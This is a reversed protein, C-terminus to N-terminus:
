KSKSSVKTHLTKRGIHLMDAAKSKNGKCYKITERIIKEEAEQMSAGFPIQIAEGSVEIDLMHKPLDKSTIKGDKSLVVIREVANRLERVNGPWDYNNLAHYISNSVSVIQKNNEEEFYNFYHRAILDIDSRRDKLPPIHISVVNLRYYLDERFKGEKVEKKIDKNTAAIIRVDVPIQVASGVREIQKEQIVRLLKVQLDKSLEGIEDLFIAGGQALEFRGKKMEVAGTFAGKEHGFLESELLTPALASCNVKILPKECQPSLAHLADCILEKGTGSEGHILVNSKAPAVLRVKELLKKMERSKGILKSFVEQERIKSSLEKNEAIINKQKLAREIILELKDLNLPKTLFDYAGIRMAEVANEITGHGTLILVPTNPVEAIIKELLEMGDMEPMKIDAIVLDVQEKMFKSFGEKGDKALLVKYGHTALAKKLGERINKEDDVILICAM